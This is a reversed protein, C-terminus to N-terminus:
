PRVLRTLTRLWDHAPTGLPAIQRVADLLGTLGVGDRAALRRLRCTDRVLAPGYTGPAAAQLADLEGGPFRPHGHPWWGPGLRAPLGPFFLDVTLLHALAEDWVVPPLRHPGSRNAVVLHGVEHCTGYVVNLGAPPPALQAPDSVAIRVTRRHDTSVSERGGPVLELRVAPPALDVGVTAARECCHVAIRDLAARYADLPADASM